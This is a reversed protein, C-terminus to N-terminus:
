QATPVAPCVQEGAKVTCYPGNPFSAGWGESHLLSRQACKGAKLTCNPGSLVSAGWGETHLLSRQGCHEGAKLTCYPVSLM